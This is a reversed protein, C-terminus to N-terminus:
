AGGVAAAVALIAPLFVLLIQYVFAWISVIRKPVLARQIGRLAPDGEGLKVPAALWESRARSFYYSPVLFLAVSAMFTLGFLVFYYYSQPNAILAISAVGLLAAVAIKRSVSVIQAVIAWGWEGDQNTQDISLQFSHRQRFLFVAVESAVYTIWLNLYNGIAGVVLYAAAGPRFPRAWWEEYANKAFDSAGDPALVAYIGGEWYGLMGGGVLALAGLVLASHIKRSTMRRNIGSIGDLFKLRRTLFLVRAAMLRPFLVALADAFEGGWVAIAAIMWIHYLTAYDRLLPVSASTPVVDQLLVLRRFDDGAVTWGEGGALVIRDALLASLTAALGILVCRVSIRVWRPGSGSSTIFEIGPPRNAGSGCALRPIQGANTPSSM